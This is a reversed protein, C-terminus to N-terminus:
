NKQDLVILRNAYDILTLLKFLILNLWGLNVVCVWLVAWLRKLIEFCHLFDILISENKLM